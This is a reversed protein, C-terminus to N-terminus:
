EVATGALMAAGVGTLLMGFLATGFSLVVGYRGVDWAFRPLADKWVDPNEWDWEEGELKLLGEDWKMYEAMLAGLIVASGLAVLGSGVFVVVGAVLSGVGSARILVLDLRRVGAPKATEVATADPVNETSAAPTEQAPQEPAPSQMLVLSVLLSTLM